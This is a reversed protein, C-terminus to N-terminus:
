GHLVNVKSVARGRTIAVIAYVHVFIADQHRLFVKADPYSGKM